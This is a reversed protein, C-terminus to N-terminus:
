DVTRVPQQTLAYEKTRTDQEYVPCSLLLAPEVPQVEAQYAVASKPEASSADRTPVPPYYPRSLCLDAAHPRLTRSGHVCLRIVSSGIGNRRQIRKCPSVQVRWSSILIQPALSFFSIFDPLSQSWHCIRWNPTIAPFLLLVEHVAASAPGTGAEEDM